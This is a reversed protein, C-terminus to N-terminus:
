FTSYSTCQSVRVPRLSGNTRRKQRHTTSEGSVESDRGERDNARSEHSQGERVVYAAIPRVEFGDPMDGM